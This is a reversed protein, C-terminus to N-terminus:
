EATIRAQWTWSSTTVGPELRQVRHVEITKGVMDEDSTISVGVQGALQLADLLARRSSAVPNGTVHGAPAKASGSVFWSRRGDDGEIKPDREATEGSIVLNLVPDNPKGTIRDIQELGPARRGTRPDTCWFQKLRSKRDPSQTPHCTSQVDKPKATIKLKIRTGPAHDLTFLSPLTEITPGWLSSQKSQYGEGLSSGGDAPQGYDAASSYERTPAPASHTVPSAAAWPDNVPQTM